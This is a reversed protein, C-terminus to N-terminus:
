FLSPVGSWKLQPTEDLRNFYMFIQQNDGWINSEPKRTIVTVHYIGDPMIIKQEEPVDRSWETLWFLDIVSVSGGKVDLALRIAIPYEKLMKESPYGTRVTIDFTGPSGTNFGIIDGKQIHEAVKESAMFEKSFFDEGESVYDMNADSYLVIGPGDTTLNIEQEHFILEGEVEIVDGVEPMNGDEFEIRIDDAIISSQAVVAYEDAIKKVEVTAVIHPSDPIPQFFSLECNVKKYEIVYEIAVTGTITQGKQNELFGTRDEVFDECEMKSVCLEIENYRAKIIREYEDCAISLVNLCVM